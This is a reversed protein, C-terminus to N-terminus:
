HPRAPARGVAPAMAADIAVFAHTRIDAPKATPPVNGPAVGAVVTLNPKVTAVEDCHQDVFAELDAVAGMALWDSLLAVESALNNFMDEGKKYAEAILKAVEPGEAVSAFFRTPKKAPASFKSLGTLTHPMAIFSALNKFHRQRAEELSPEFVVRGSVYM